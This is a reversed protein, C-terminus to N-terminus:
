ARATGEYPRGDDHTPGEAGRMGGRVYAVLYEEMVPYGDPAGIGRAIQTVANIAAFLGAAPTGSHHQDGCFPLLAASLATLVATEAAEACAAWEEPPPLSDPNTPTM